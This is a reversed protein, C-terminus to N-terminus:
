FFVLIHAQHALSDGHPLGGGGNDDVGGVAKTRALITNNVVHSGRLVVLEKLELQDARNGEALCFPHKM